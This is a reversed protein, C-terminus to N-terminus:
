NVRKRKRSQEEDLEIGMGRKRKSREDLRGVFAGIRGERRAAHRGKPREKNLVDTMRLVAFTADGPIAIGNPLAELETAGAAGNEPETWAWPVEEDGDINIRILTRINGDSGHEELVRRIVGPQEFGVGIELVVVDGAKENLWTNLAYREAEWKTEGEMPRFYHLPLRYEINCIECRPIANATTIMGTTHDYVKALADFLLSTTPADPQYDCKPCQLEEMVGNVKWVNKSDFGRREFMGDINSTVVKFRVTGDPDTFWSKCIRALGQYVNPTRDAGARKVQYQLRSYFGWRELPDSWRRRKLMDTTSWGAPARTATAPFLRQFTTPSNWDFLGTSHSLGSGAAILLHGVNRIASTAQQLIPMNVPRDYVHHMNSIHSPPAIRRLLPNFHFLDSADKVCFIVREVRSTPNALFYQRAARIAEAAAEAKPIGWDRDPFAVSVGQAVDTAPLFEAVELAHQYCDHLEQLQGPTPAGNGQNIPASAHIVFQAPLFYGRTVVVEGQALGAPGLHQGVVELDSHLRHGAGKHIAKDPCDHGVLRCCHLLPGTASVIATTPLITIDGNYTGLRYDAALPPRGPREGRYRARRVLGLDEVPLRQALYQQVQDLRRLIGNLAGGNARWQVLHGEMFNVLEHTELRRMWDRGGNQVRLVVTNHFWECVDELSHFARRGLIPNKPFDTYLNIADRYANHPAPLQGALNTIQPRTSPPAYTVIPCELYRHQTGAIPDYTRWRTPPKQNAM